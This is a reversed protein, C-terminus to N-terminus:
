KKLVKRTETVVEQTWHAVEPVSITGSYENLQRWSLFKQGMKNRWEKEPIENEMKKKKGELVKM